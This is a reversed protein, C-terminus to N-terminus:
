FLENYHKINEYYRKLHQEISYDYSFDRVKNGILDLNKEGSMSVAFAIRYKNYM